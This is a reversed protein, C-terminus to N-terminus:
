CGDIAFLAEGPLSVTQSVTADFPPVAFHLAGELIATPPSDAPAEITDAQGPALTRSSGGLTRGAGAERLILDTQFACTGTSRIVLPVRPAGPGSANGSCAVLAAAVALSVTIRNM